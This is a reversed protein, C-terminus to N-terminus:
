LHSVLVDARTSLDTFKSERASFSSRLSTEVNQVAAGSYLLVFLKVPEYGHGGYPSVVM